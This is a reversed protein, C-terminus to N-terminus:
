CTLALELRTSARGCLDLAEGRRVQREHYMLEPAQAEAMAGAGGSETGARLDM